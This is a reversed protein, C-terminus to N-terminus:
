GEHTDDRESNFSKRREKFSKHESLMISERDEEEEEEGQYVRINTVDFKRVDSRRKYRM